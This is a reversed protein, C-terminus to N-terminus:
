RLLSTPTLRLKGKKHMLQIAERHQDANNAMTGLYIGRTIKPAGLSYVLKSLKWSPSSLNAFAAGITRTVSASLEIPATLRLRKGRLSDGICSQM